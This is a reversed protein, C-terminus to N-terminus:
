THKRERISLASSLEFLFDLVFFHWNGGGGGDGRVMAAAKQLNNISEVSRSPSPKKQSSM